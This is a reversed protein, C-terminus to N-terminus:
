ELGLVSVLGVAVKRMWWWWWVGWDVWDVGVEVRVERGGVCM